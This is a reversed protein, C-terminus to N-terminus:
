RLRRNEHFRGVDVRKSPEFEKELESQITEDYKQVRWAEENIKEKPWNPDPPPIHVSFYRICDACHLKKFARTQVNEKHKARIIQRAAIFAGQRFFKVKGTALVDRTISNFLPVNKNACPTWRGHTHKAHAAFWNEANDYISMFYVYGDCIAREDCVAEIDTARATRGKWEIEQAWICYWQNDSPDEAFECFGSRHGAPDLVRIRRWSHPVHFDDVIEPYVNSFVRDEERTDDVWDGYLRMKRIHEPLHALDGMARKLKEPNDRFAPNDMMGWRHQSLAQSNEVYEVIEDSVDVPTWSSSLLGGSDLVRMMLETLTEINPPPEDLYVGGDVAAGMKSLLNQSYSRFLIEDGNRFRVSHIIEKGRDKEYHIMPTLEDDTYYWSPIYAELYQKWVVNHLFLLDPAAFWWQKPKSNLYEEDTECYWNAHYPHKRTVRWALDRTNILTKGARNGCRALKTLSPDQLFEIQKEFPRMTPDPPYFTSEKYRKEEAMASWLEAASVQDYM